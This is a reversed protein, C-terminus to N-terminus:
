GQTASQCGQSVRTYLHICDCSQLLQSLNVFSVQSQDILGLHIPFVSCGEEAYRGLHHSANQNVVGAAMLRRFSTALELLNRKFVVDVCSHLVTVFQQRQITSLVSNTDSGGPGCALVVFVTGLWVTLHWGVAGAM